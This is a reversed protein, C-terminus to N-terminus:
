ATVVLIRTGWPDRTEFGGDMPTVTAGAQRL